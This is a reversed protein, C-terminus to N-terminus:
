RTSASLMEGKTKRRGRGWMPAFFGTRRGSPVPLHSAAVVVMEMDHSRLPAEDTMRPMECTAWERKKLPAGRSADRQSAALAVAPLESGGRRVQVENVGTGGSTTPQRGVGSAPRVRLADM